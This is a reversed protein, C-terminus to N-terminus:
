RQGLNLHVVVSVIHALSKRPFLLYVCSMDGINAQVTHSAVAPLLPSLTRPQRAARTAPVELRRTATASSLKREGSTTRSCVHTKQHHYPTIELPFPLQNYPLALFTLPTRQCYRTLNLAIAPIFQRSRDCRTVEWSFCTCM